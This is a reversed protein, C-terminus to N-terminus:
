KGGGVNKPEAESIRQPFVKKILKQKSESLEKYKEGFTRMALGNRLENYAAALENQVQIYTGYSTGRDNQLSIVGKSVLYTHGFYKGDIDTIKKEPLKPNNAPNDIFEKAKDKLLRVDMPEGEVLLQNNKNILVVFVNREKIKDNSKEQDKEPMPPLKRSIGSDTDMTTTVLFFILLLFAIDAMSGANFGGMKQRAM